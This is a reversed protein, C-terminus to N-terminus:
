FISYFIISKKKKKVHSLITKSFQPNEITDLLQSKLSPIILAQSHQSAKSIFVQKFYAAEGQQRDQRNM